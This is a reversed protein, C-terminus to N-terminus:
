QTMDKIRKWGEGDRKMLSKGDVKWAVETNRWVALLDERRGRRVVERGTEVTGLRGRAVERGLREWTQGEVQGSLELWVVNWARCRELLSVLARGEEATTCCIIMVVLETIQERQISIHSLLLSRSIRSMNIKHVAHRADERATLALVELGLGTVSDLQPSSPFSVTINEWGRVTAPYREYITEHLLSFIANSNAISSLFTTIMRVRDEKVRGDEVLRTKALVGRWIREQGIIRALDTSSSGLSIVDEVSELKMVVEELIEPFLDMLSPM